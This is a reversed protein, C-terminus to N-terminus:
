NGPTFCRSHFLFFPSTPNPSSRGPDQPYWLSHRDAMRKYFNKGKDRAPPSNTPLRAYFTRTIRAVGSPRPFLLDWPWISFSSLQLSYGNSRAQLWPSVIPHFQHPELPPGWCVNSRRLFIPCPWPLLPIGSSHVRGLKWLANAEEKSIAVRRCCISASTSPIIKKLM